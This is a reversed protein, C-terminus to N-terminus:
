TEKIKIRFIKKLFFPYESGSIAENLENLNIPANAKANGKPIYM